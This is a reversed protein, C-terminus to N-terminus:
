SDLNRMPTPLVTTTTPGVCVAASVSNMMMVAVVVSIVRGAGATGICCVCREEAEPEVRDDFHAATREQDGPPRECHLQRSSSPPFGAKRGQEGIDGLKAPGPAPAARSNSVVRPIGASKVSPGPYGAM